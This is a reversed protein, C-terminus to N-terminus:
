LTEGRRLFKLMDIRGGSKEPMRQSRGGAGETEKDPAADARLLCGEPHNSVFEDLAKLVAFGLRRGHTKLTELSCLGFSCHCDPCVSRQRGCIHGTSGDRM